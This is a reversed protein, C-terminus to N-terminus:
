EESKQKLSFLKGFGFRKLSTYLIVPLLLGGVWCVFLLVWANLSLGSHAFVTRLAAAVPVHLIYIYLSYKGLWALWDNGRLSILHAIIYVLWCAVLNIM